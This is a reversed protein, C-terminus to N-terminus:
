SGPALSKLPSRHWPLAPKPFPCGAGTEGAGLWCGARCWLGSGESGCGGVWRGACGGEGPARGGREREANMKPQMRFAAIM